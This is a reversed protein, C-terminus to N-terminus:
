NGSKTFEIAGTPTQTIDAKTDSTYYAFGGDDPRYLSYSQVLMSRFKRRVEDKESETLHPWLLRTLMKACQYQKPGCDHQDITGEPIRTDLLKLVGRALAEAYRLPFQPSQNEGSDNLVLKLVHFTANIDTKQRWEGANGIGRGLLRIGPRADRLGAAFKLSRNRQFCTLARMKWRAVEALESVGPGTWVPM